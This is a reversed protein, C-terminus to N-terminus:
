TRVEVVDDSPFGARQWVEVIGASHLARVEHPVRSLEVAEDRFGILDHRAVVHLRITPERRGLVCWTSQKKATEWWRNFASSLYTISKGM